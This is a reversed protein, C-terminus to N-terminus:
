RAPNLLEEDLLPDVRPTEPPSKPSAENMARAQRERARRQHALARARLATRYAIEYLWCGCSEGTRISGAKRVLVLFTAQFADEADHVDRLLRRCVGLVMPGHRRLLAAFAAEDRRVVFADLLEGDGTEADPRAVRRLQQLVFQTQGVHM